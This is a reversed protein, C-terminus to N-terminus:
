SCPLSALCGSTICTGFQCGKIESCTLAIEMGNQEDICGRTFSDSGSAHKMKIVYCRSGPIPCKMNQSYSDCDELSMLSHCHECSDSFIFNISADRYTFKHFIIYKLQPSLNLSIYVDQATSSWDYRWIKRRLEFLHDKMYESANMTM